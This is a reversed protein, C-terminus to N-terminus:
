KKKGKSTVDQVFAGWMFATGAIAIGGMILKFTGPYYQDFISAVTFSGILLLIWIFVAM